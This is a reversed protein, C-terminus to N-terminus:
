AKILPASQRLQRVTSREEMSCAAADPDGAVGDGGETAVGTGGSVQVGADGGLDAAAGAGDAPSDSPVPLDRGQCGGSAALESAAGGEAVDAGGDPVAGASLQADEGSATADPTGESSVSGLWVLHSIFFSNQAVFNNKCQGANKCFDTLPM